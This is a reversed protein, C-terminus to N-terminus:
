AASKRGGQVVRLTARREAAARRNAIASRALELFAELLPGAPDAVKRSSAQDAM